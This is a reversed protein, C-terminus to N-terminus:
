TVFRFNLSLQLHISKVDLCIAFHTRQSQQFVQVLGIDLHELPSETTQQVRLRVYGQIPRDLEYM